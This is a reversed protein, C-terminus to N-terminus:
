QRGSGRKRRNQRKRMDKIFEVLGDLEFLFADRLEPKNRYAVLAIGAFMRRIKLVKRKIRARTQAGEVAATQRAM